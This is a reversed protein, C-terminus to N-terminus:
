EESRRTNGFGKCRRVRELISLYNEVQKEVSFAMANERAASGMEQWHSRENWAQEFGGLYADVTPHDLLWGTSRNQIMESPGGAKYAIVPLGSAMAEAISIGFPEADRRGNVFVDSAAYLNGVDEIEGILQVRGEGESDASELLSRGLDTELPGGAIVLHAGSRFAESALFAKLVLDPGKDWALRAAVSFVPVDVPLSFRRRAEEKCLRKEVRSPRFGPYVVDGGALGLSAITHRSNGIANVGWAAMGARYYTRALRGSVTAPMHWLTPVRLSQGLRGSFVLFHPRRFAVALVHGSGVAADISNQVSVSQAVSKIANQVVSAVRTPISGSFGQFQLNLFVVHDSADAYEQGTKGSGLVVACVAVGHRKLESIFGLEASRVGGGDAGYVIKILTPTCRMSCM